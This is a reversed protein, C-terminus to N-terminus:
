SCKMSIPLSLSEEFQSVNQTSCRWHHEDANQWHSRQWIIKMHEDKLIAGQEDIYNAASKGRSRFESAVNEAGDAVQKAAPKLQEQTFQQASSDVQAGFICRSLLAPQASQQAAQLFTNEAVPHRRCVQVITM